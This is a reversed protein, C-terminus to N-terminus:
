CCDLECWWGKKNSDKKRTIDKRRLTDIQVILKVLESDRRNECLVSCSWSGCLRNILWVDWDIACGCNFQWQQETTLVIIHLIKQWVFYNITFNTSWLASPPPQTNEASRREYLAKKTRWKITYINGNDCLWWFYTGYHVSHWVTKSNPCKFVVDLLYTQHFHVNSYVWFIFWM